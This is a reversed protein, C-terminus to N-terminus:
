YLVSKLHRCFPLLIVIGRNPINYILIPDGVRLDEVRRYDNDGVLIMTEPLLGASLNSSFFFLFIISFVKKLFNIM